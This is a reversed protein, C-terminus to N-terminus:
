VQEVNDKGFLSLTSCVGSYVNRVQLDGGFESWRGEYVESSTLTYILSGVRNSKRSSYGTQCNTKFLTVSGM